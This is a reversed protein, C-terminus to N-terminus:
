ALALRVVRLHSSKLTPPAQLAPPPAQLAPPPAELGALMAAGFGACTGLFNKTNLTM